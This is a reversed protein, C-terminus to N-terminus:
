CLNCPLSVSVDESLFSRQLHQGYPLQHLHLKNHVTGVSSQQVHGQDIVFETNSHGLRNQSFLGRIHERAWPSNSQIVGLTALMFFSRVSEKGKTMKGHGRNVGLKLTPARDKSAEEMRALKEYGKDLNLAHVDQQM